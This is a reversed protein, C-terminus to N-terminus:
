WTTAVTRLTVWTDGQRAYDTVLQLRWDARTGYVTADTVTRAVLRATDGDIDLTTKKEDIVHYVFQGQRMQALWEAKPQVYGTMHTLTFGDELLDDLAKTDGEDMASLYARHADLIEERARQDASPQM